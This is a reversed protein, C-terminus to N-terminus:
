KPQSAKRSVGLIGGSIGSEINGSRQYAKNNEGESISVRTENEATEEENGRCKKKMARWIGRRHNSLSIGSGNEASAVGRRANV